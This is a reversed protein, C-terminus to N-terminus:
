RVDVRGLVADAITAARLERDLEYRDALMQFTWGAPFAKTAPAVLHFWYGKLRYAGVYRLYAVAQAEEGAPVVLGQAQLKALLREPTQAPKSFPVKTM